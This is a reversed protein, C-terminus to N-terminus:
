RNGALRVPVRGVMEGEEQHLRGSLCCNLHMEQRQAKYNGWELWAPMLIGGVRRRFRRPEIEAGGILRACGFTARPREAHRAHVRVCM